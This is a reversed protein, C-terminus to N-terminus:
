QVLVSHRKREEDIWIGRHRDETLDGLPQAGRDPPPAESGAVQKRAHALNGLFEGHVGVRDVLGHGLEFALTEDLGLAPTPHHHPRSRPRDCLRRTVLRHERQEGIRGTERRSRSHRAVLEILEHTAGLARRGGTLRCSPDLAGM